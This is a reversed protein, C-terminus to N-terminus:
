YGSNVGKSIVDNSVSNIYFYQNIATESTKTSTFGGAHKMKAELKSERALIVKKEGDM